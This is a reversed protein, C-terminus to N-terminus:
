FGKGSSRAPVASRHPEISMRRTETAGEDRRAASSREMDALAADREDAPEAEIRGGAFDRDQITAIDNGPRAGLGSLGPYDRLLAATQAAPSTPAQWLQSREGVAALMSEGPDAAIPLRAGERALAALKTFAPMSAGQPSIRGSHQLALLTLDPLKIAYALEGALAWQAALPLRPNGQRVTKRINEVLDQNAKQRDAASGWDGRVKPGRLLANLNESALRELRERELQLATLDAVKVIVKKEAGADSRLTFHYQQSLQGWGLGFFLNIREGGEITKPTDNPWVYLGNSVEALTFTARKKGANILRAPHTGVPSALSFVYDSGVQSFDPTSLNAGTEAGTVTANLANVLMIVADHERGDPKVIGMHNEGIPTGPGDCFRTAGAWPVILYGYTASKEFACAVKPRM